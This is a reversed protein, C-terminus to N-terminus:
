ESPKGVKRMNRDSGVTNRHDKTRKGWNSSSRKAERGKEEREEKRREEKREKKETARQIKNVQDSQDRKSKNTAPRLRSLRFVLTPVLLSSSPIQKKRSRRKPKSTAV